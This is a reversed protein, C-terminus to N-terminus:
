QFAGSGGEQTSSQLTVRMIPEGALLKRYSMLKVQPVPWGNM